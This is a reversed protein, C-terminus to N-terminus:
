WLTVWSIRGHEGGRPVMPVMSGVPVAPAKTEFFSSPDGPPVDDDSDQRTIQPVIGIDIHIYVIFTYIYIYKNIYM